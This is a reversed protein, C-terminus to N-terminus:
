TMSIRKPDSVAGNNGLRKSNKFLDLHNFDMLLVLQLIALINQLIKLNM